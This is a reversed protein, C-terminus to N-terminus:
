DGDGAVTVHREGEATINITVITSRAGERRLFRVYMSGDDWRGVSQLDESKLPADSAPMLSAGELSKLGFEKNAITLWSTVEDRGGLKVVSMLQELRKKIALLQETEEVMPGHGLADSRVLKSRNDANVSIVTTSFHVPLPQREMTSLKAEVTESDYNFFRNERIIFDLLEQLEAESIQDEYAKSHAYSQPMVVTGNALISLTPADDIRKLRSGQFDLTIVPEAPDQPLVYAQAQEPGTMFIGTTVIIALLLMSIRMRMRM